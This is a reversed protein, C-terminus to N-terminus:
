RAFMLAGMVVLFTLVQFVARVAQWRAFADLRVALERQDDRATRIGLMLPAARSTAVFHLVSTVSAAIVAAVLVRGPREVLAIVAAAFVSLAAAIAWAPYAWRGNGLDNARAFAAYAVAGIRKRAPLKVVSTDLSAGALTGNLAVSVVLLIQLTHM